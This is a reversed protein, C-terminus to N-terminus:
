RRVDGLRVAVATAVILLVVIELSIVGLRHCSHDSVLMSVVPRNTGDDCTREVFLNALAVGTFLVGLGGVVPSRRVADRAWVGVGVLLLLAAVPIVLILILALLDNSM